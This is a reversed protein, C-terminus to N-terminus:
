SIEASCIIGSFPGQALLDEKEWRNLPHKADTKCAQANRVQESIIFCHRREMMCVPNM